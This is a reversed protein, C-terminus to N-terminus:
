LRNQRARCASKLMWPHLSASRGAHANELNTLPGCLSGRNAKRRSARTMRDVVAEIRTTHENQFQDMIVLEVPIHEGHKYRVPISKMGWCLLFGLLHDRYRLRGREYTRHNLVVDRPFEWGFPLKYLNLRSHYEQPDSPWDFDEGGWPLRIAFECIIILERCPNVVEVHLFCGTGGPDPGLVFVESDGTQQIRLSSDDVDREDLPVGAALIRRRITLKEEKTM